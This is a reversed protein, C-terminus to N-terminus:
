VKGLAQGGGRTRAGAAAGTKASAAGCAGAAAGPGQWGLSCRPSWPQRLQPLGPPVAMTDKDGMGPPHAPLSGHLDSGPWGSLILVAQWLMSDPTPPDPSCAGSLVGRQLGPM